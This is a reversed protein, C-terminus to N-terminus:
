RSSTASIGPLVEPDALSSNTVYKYREGEVAVIVTRGNIEEIRGNISGIEFEDGVTLRYIEGEPKVDIWVIQDGNRDRVIATIFALEAIDITEPEPDRRTERVVREEVRFSVEEQVVEPPSGNDSVLVVLEYRDEALPPAVITASQGDEAVEINVLGRLSEPISNEDLEFNFKNFLDDDEADLSIEIEDDLYFRSGSTKIEPLEGNPNFLDRTLLEAHQMVVHEEERLPSRSPADEERPEADPLCIGDTVLNIRVYERRNMPRGTKPDQQAIPSFSLSVIRQLYNASYYEELLQTHQKLTGIGTLTCRVTRYVTYGKKKNKKESGESVAVDPSVLGVHDSAIELLWAKYETRAVQTTSPLSKEIFQNREQTSRALRNAMFEMDSIERELNAAMARKARLSGSVWNYAIYSVVLVGLTGVALALMRERQSMNKM